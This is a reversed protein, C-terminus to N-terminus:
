LGKTNGKMVSQTARDKIDTINKIKIKSSKQKHKTPYMERDTAPEKLDSTIAIKASM